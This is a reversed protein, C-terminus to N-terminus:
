RLWAALERELERPGRPAVIRHRLKRNEVVCLTPVWEIRFKQALDPRKDVCVRVLDFTEHNHRHQLVQAIYGEVRRCRGSRSSYFFVLKPKTATM